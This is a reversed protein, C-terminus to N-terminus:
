PTQKMRKLSNLGKFRTKPTKPFVHLEKSLCRTEATMGAKLSLLFMELTILANFVVLPTSSISTTSSPEVSPVASVALRKPARTTLCLCFRPFPAAMLVPMLFALFSTKTKRSASKSFMVELFIKKSASGTTESSALKELAVKLLPSPPLTVSSAAFGKNSYKNGPNERESGKLPWNQAVLRRKFRSSIASSQPTSMANTKSTRSCPSFITSTLMPESLCLCLGNDLRAMVELCTIFVISCLAPKKAFFCLSMTSSKSLVSTEALLM